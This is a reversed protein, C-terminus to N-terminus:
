VRELQLRGILRILEVQRALGGVLFRLHSADAPYQGLTPDVAVWGNFYVEPWAHYYFRGRVTVLGVATRAPLGVARALAVFLVTHENCDGQKADLVQLASPVSLTIDKDLTRYVWDNLKRAALVPDTTNGVIRRATAIIRPDDSQILPSADLEAAPAGGARYPLTYGARLASANERNITLTDGNLQQRGGALDFGELEVGVLRVRLRDAAAINRVDVNSAIATQEIVAGYGSAYARTGAAQKWEQDALEFATRELTFGLPSEAKVLHGDEDIWNGVKISGVSQEVRWVPITDYRTVVFKSGDWRASDPVIMTDRGTISLLSERDSMTSPDFVRTTITKGVQLQNAAALRLPVAADLMLLRDARITSKQTRGGARLLLELTSDARMTGAVNFRGIESTLEFTFDQLELSPGLKIRTAAIARHVTDMAPVELIINDEFVFGTSLTDFRSRAFGIAAGNMRVVYYYSGPALGRAGEALVVADPKFYERKIHWGVIGSWVILIVAGALRRKSIKM